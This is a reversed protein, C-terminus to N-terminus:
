TPMQQGAPMQHVSLARVLVTVANCSSPGHWVALDLHIHTTCSCRREVCSDYLAFTAACGHQGALRLGQLHPVRTEAHRLAAYCAAASLGCRHQPNSHKGTKRCVEQAKCARGSKPPQDGLLLVM